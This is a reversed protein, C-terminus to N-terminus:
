NQKNNNVLTRLENLGRSIRVSVADTSIRLIKSIEQPPLDEVFRLYVAQRNPPRIKQLMDILHRAEARSEIDLYSENSLYDCLGTGYEENEEISIAKKKRYWDIILHHAVAFLFARTNLIKVGKHMSQWMRTFAEQTLDKAQEQNSVRILCFRYISDAETEYCNEFVRKISTSNM